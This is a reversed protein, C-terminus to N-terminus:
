INTPTAMDRSYEAGGRIKEIVFEADPKGDLSNM